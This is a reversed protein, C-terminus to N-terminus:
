TEPLLQRTPKSTNASKTKAWSSLASGTKELHAKHAPAFLSVIPHM